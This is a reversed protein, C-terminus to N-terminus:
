EIRFEIEFMKGDDEKKKKKKIREELQGLFLFSLVLYKQRAFLNLQLPLDDLM